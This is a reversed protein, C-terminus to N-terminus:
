VEAALGALRAEIVADKLIEIEDHALGTIRPILKDLLNTLFIITRRLKGITQGREEYKQFLEQRLQASINAVIQAENLKEKGRTSLWTLLWTATNSGAVTAVLTWTDM